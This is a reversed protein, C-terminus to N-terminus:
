AANREIPTVGGSADLFVRGRGAIWVPVDAPDFNRGVAWGQERAAAPNTTVHVHCSHCVHLLNEPSWDGGQSRNKRHHAETARARDCMECARNSRAYLLERAKKINL